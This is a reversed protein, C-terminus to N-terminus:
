SPWHTLNKDEEVLVGVQIDPALQLRYVVDKVRFYRARLPGAGVRYTLEIREGIRPVFDSEYDTNNGDQDIVRLYKM